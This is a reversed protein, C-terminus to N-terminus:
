AMIASLYPQCHWFPELWEQVCTIGSASSTHWFPELWEPVAMCIVHSSHGFPELWESVALQMVQHTYSHNSGNQCPWNCLKLALIARAMRVRGTAHTSHLFSELWEPVALQMVQTGSHSLGNHCEFITPLALIARAMKAHLYHWQGFKLALIARAMKARLYHWQGFKLALIARAMRACGHLNCSKLALITRAMRDRGSQMVQTGSHSSGNQCPWNCSKLALIARAMRACGHLNCSELALITRAMRARGTAHSSSHLFPELRDPVALQMVQTGPHSVGNHCEFITPLALIARAMRASLYQM